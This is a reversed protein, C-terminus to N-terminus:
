VHLSPLLQPLHLMCSPFDCLHCDGCCNCSSKCKGCSHIYSCADSLWSPVGVTAIPSPFTFMVPPVILPRDEGMAMASPPVAAVLAPASCSSCKSTPVNPVCALLAIATVPPVIEPVIIVSLDYAHLHHAKRMELRAFSKRLLHFSLHLLLRLIRHISNSLPRM